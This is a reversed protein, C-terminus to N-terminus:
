KSNIPIAIYGTVERGCSVEYVEFGKLRGVLEAKHDASITIIKRKREHENYQRLCYDVIPILVLLLVVSFMIRALNNWMLRAFRFFFKDKHNM